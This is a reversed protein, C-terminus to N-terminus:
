SNYHLIGVVMQNSQNCSTICNSASNCEPNYSIIHNSKIHFVYIYIRIYIYLAIYMVCCASVPTGEGYLSEIRLDWIAQRPPFMCIYIKNKSSVNWDWKQSQTIGHPGHNCSPPKRYVIATIYRPTGTFGYMPIQM